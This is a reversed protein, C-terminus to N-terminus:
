FSFGTTLHLRGNGQDKDPNIPIGYDVRVPGMRPIDLGLGLGASYRTDSWSFDGTDRWVGGSDAFAFLRLIKTVRYKLELNTVVRVGGGVAFDDGWFLFEREKPGIDRLDYGRVTYTGGAYFRDQLPIYDSSGYETMWGHRSRLSLVWRESESLPRYWISDHELKVFEHDGGFGAVEASLLHRAGRAPDRRNDLTNREIQWRNSLTTSEGHQRRIDRNVFFPLESIDTEVARFSTRVTLYPSLAKGFRLQGGRQDERYDAGGRIEYSEDFIDFGAAIPLGFIEPETLSLSYEDRRNGINARLKFQQGGGSFKPWNTLDFNNLKLEGFVGMGEETNYGTGFRFDGTKGEDVDVLLNTYLPDEEFDEINIRVKEFYETNELRRRSSKVATGDYRDGPDLMMERRIVEDQTTDNGTVRVERLYKLDGEGVRQVVRTTKADKDLTVQPTVVANVFGSDQYTKKTEDADEAVQGKNHVDGAHVEINELLEDDDFVANGALELTDVHYEPGEELYVTIRMGKGRRTYTLDTRPILAELRGVDGYEDIISSLDNEFKEQEYKGGLFFFAKNTKMTKRLKRTKLADNGVFTIKRIRAKRGEQISYTLRVRSPGINEVIIDIETNAYAKSEYLDLMAELEESCAEAIFADGERMTLVARIKRLKLKRNGIIKIEEIVRKEELLYTVILKEGSLAADAQIGSFYGLEHLRHIDRAIARKNYPQGPQVELQSRVPQESVLNLGEIRVEAIERGDYPQAAALGAACLILACLGPGCVGSQRTLGFSVRGAPATKKSSTAVSQIM